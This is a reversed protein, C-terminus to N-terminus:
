SEKIVTVNPWEYKFQGIRQGEIGNFNMRWTINFSDVYARCLEWFHEPGDSANLLSLFKELISEQVIRSKAWILLEIQQALIRDPMTILESLLFYEEDSTIM